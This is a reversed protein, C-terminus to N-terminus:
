KQIKKLAKNCAKKFEKDGTAARRAKKIPDIGQEDGIEGLAKAAFKRVSWDEDNLADVLQDVVKDSKIDKLALTAYRRINGEENKLINVLPEIAPEGINGLSKASAFRVHPNDDDLAKILPEVAGADQCEGLSEAAEKRVEPDENKLEELLINLDKNDNDSLIIGRTTRLEIKNKQSILRVFYHIFEISLTIM